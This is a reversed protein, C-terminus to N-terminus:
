SRRWRLATLGDPLSASWCYYDHGGNFENNAVDYNKAKLKDRAVVFTCPYMQAYRREGESFYQVQEYEKGDSEVGM